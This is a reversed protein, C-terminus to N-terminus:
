LLYNEPYKNLVKNIRDWDKEPDFGAKDELLVNMYPKSKFNGYDTDSVDTNENVMEFRIDNKKFFKKYKEIESDHSCTYLM